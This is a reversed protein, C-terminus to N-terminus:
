LINQGQWDLSGWSTFARHFRTLTVDEVEFHVLM